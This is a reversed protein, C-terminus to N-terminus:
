PETEGALQQLNFRMLELYTHRGTEASSGMADLAIIKLGTRQAWDRAVAPPLDASIVMFDVAGERAGARIARAEDDGIWPVDIEVPRAERIGLRKLLPTFDRSLTVVRTPAGSRLKPLMEELLGDIAANTREANRKFLDANEKEPRLLSLRDAFETVCEKAIVPDLWLYGAVPHGRTSRLSDLRILRPAQSVDEFPAIAWPEDLGNSLVADALSLKQRIDSTVAVSQPRQGIEIAWDVQVLGGGVNRALDAVPYVTAFIRM